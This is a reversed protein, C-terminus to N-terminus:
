GTHGNFIRENFFIVFKFLQFSTYKHNAGYSPMSEHLDVVRMKALAQLRTMDLSLFIAVKLSVSELAKLIIGLFPLHEGNAEEAVVCLIDTARTAAVYLASPCITADAEKAFYTFYKANFGFVVVIKKELGKAANFTSLAVKGELVEASAVGEDSQSVHVPIGRDVLMNELIRIPMKSNNSNLSANLLFVDAPLILGDEIMDILERGLCNVAAYPNGKFYHVPPGDGKHAVLNNKRLMVENVFRAINGTVRYSTSLKKIVWKYYTSDSSTHGFADFLRDAM